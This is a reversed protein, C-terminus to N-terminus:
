SRRIASWLLVFSLFVLESVIFWLRTVLAVLSAVANTLTGTTLKVFTVERVGLGMPTIVSVYGVFWAAVNVGILRSLTVASLDPFSWWVMATALGFVIWVLGYWVLLALVEIMTVPPMDSWHAMKGVVTLLWPLLIPLGAIVLLAAWWWDTANLYLLAIMGAGGVLGMAEIVLAQITSAAPAGATVTGRYKAAFSWVNGPVYRMLESVTWTRLTQHRQAESGHRRVIMEWAFYRLGFWLQFVALSGLLWGVRLQALSSWVRRDLMLLWRFIFGLALIAIMWGLLRWWNLRPGPRDDM